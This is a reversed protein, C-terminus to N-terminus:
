WMLTLKDENYEVSHIGHATLAVNPDVVIRYIEYNNLYLKKNIRSVTATEVDIWDSKCGFDYEIYRDNMGCIPANFGKNHMKFLRRELGYNLRFEKVRRTDHSEKCRKTQYLKDEYIGCQVADIDFLNLVDMPDKYKGNLMIVQILPNNKPLVFTWVIAHKGRVVPMPREVGFTWFINDAIKDFNSYSTIFLDIDGVSEKPVFDNLAYIISGGAIFATNSLYTLLKSCDNEFLTNLRNIVNTVSMILDNVM